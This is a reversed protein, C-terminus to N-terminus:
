GVGGHRAVRDLVQKIRREAEELQELHNIHEVQGKKRHVTYIPGAYLAGASTQAELPIPSNDAKRIVAGGGSRKSVHESIQRADLMGKIFVDDDFVKALAKEEGPELAREDKEKIYRERLRGLRGIADRVDAANFPDARRCQEVKEFFDRADGLIRTLADSM